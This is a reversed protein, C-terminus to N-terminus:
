VPIGHHGTPLDPHIQIELLRDLVTMNQDDLVDDIGAEGDFVQLGIQLRPIGGRHPDTRQQVLGGIVHFESREIETAELNRVVEHDSVSEVPLAVIAVKGM